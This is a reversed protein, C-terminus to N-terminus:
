DRGLGAPQTTPLPPDNTILSLSGTETLVFRSYVDSKDASVCGQHSHLVHRGHQYHWLDKLSVWVTVAAGGLDHDHM